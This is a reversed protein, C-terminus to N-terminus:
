QGHATMEEKTNQRISEVLAAIGSLNETNWETKENNINLAANLKRHSRFGCEDCYFMRLALAVTQVHGCRSCTMTTYEAPRKELSRGFAEAKTGLREFFMGWAADLIRLRALPPRKKIKGETTRYKKSKRIIGIIDLNEVRITAFRECYWRSLKCIFDLRRNAIREHMLRISQYTEEMRKSGARKEKKMAERQRAAKRQLIRLKRLEKELFEQRAIRKGQSDMSFLMTGVDIGVSDYACPVTEPPVDKCSFCVFWKGSPVRRITVTAITGQIEQGGRLRFRGISDVDLWKGDFHWGTANTFTSSQYHRLKQFKPFGAQRGLGAKARRYFAEYAKDLRDLVNKLTQSLGPAAYEPFDLKLFKLEASQTFVSPFRKPIGTEHNYFVNKLDKLKAKKPARTGKDARPKRPKVRDDVLDAVGCKRTWCDIRQELACNYIQQCLRLWQAAKAEADGKPYARFKYTRRMLMGPM